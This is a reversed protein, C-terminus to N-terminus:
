VQGRKVGESGKPLEWSDQCGERLRLIWAGPGKLLGGAIYLEAQTCEQVKHVTNCIYEAIPETPPTCLLRLHALLEVIHRDGWKRLHLAAEELHSKEEVPLYTAARLIAGSDFHIDWVGRLIREKM